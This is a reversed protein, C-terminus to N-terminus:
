FFWFISVGSNHLGYKRDGAGDGDSFRPGFETQFFDFFSEVAVITAITTPTARSAKSRSTSRKSQRLFRRRRCGLLTGFGAAVVVHDNNASAPVDGDFSSM